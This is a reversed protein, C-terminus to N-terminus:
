DKETAEDFIRKLTKDRNKTSFDGEVILRRAERGIRRRLSANEILLSTKEVIQKVLLPRYKRIGLLLNPDHHNPAGNWIYYPLQPLPSLLIGTEMDKVAETVNYLKRTVVALEYSMAELTVAGLNLHAPFLFIDSSAYLNRLAEDTLRSHVIKINLNDTSKAAIEPPVWSRIVLEIGDYKKNLEAFAEVAEYGGKWEFNLFNLENISGVFLLRVKNNEKKKVFDRPTVAFHVTKIKDKFADCNMSRLLTREAWYSWPMIKKCCKTTLAKQVFRRGLRIDGYDVLANAFEFDVVWPMKALTLQQSSYVLDANVEFTSRIGQIRKLGIYSVTRAEEWIRRTSLRNTLKKDFRYVLQRRMSLNSVPVAQQEQLNGTIFQYGDPPQKLLDKYVAYVVGGESRGRLYVTKM